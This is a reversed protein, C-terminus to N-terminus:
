IRLCLLASAATWFCLTYERSLIYLNTSGYQRIQVFYGGLHLAPVVGALDWDNHSISAPSKTVKNVFNQIRKYFLTLYHENEGASLLARLRKVAGDNIYEPLVDSCHLFGFNLRVNDRM